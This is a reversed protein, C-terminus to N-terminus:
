RRAHAALLDYGGAHVGKAALSYKQMAKGVGHTSGADVAFMGKVDKHGVYFANIERSNRTSRPGTAVESLTSRRARSRSRPKRAM